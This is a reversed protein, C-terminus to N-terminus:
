VKGVLYSEILHAKSDPFQVFKGRLFCRYALLCAVGACFEGSGTDIREMSSPDSDPSCCGAALGGICCNM